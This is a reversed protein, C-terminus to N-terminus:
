AHAVGSKIVDFYMTTTTLGVGVITVYKGTTADAEPNVAGSDGAVYVAGATFTATTVTITCGPKAYVVPQGAAADNLAMGIVVASAEADWDALNANNNNAGDEFLLQGADVAVEAIMTGTKGTTTVEAATITLAVM